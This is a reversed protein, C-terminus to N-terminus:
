NAADPRRHHEFRRGRVSRGWNGNAKCDCNSARGCCAECKSQTSRRRCTKKASSTRSGIRGCTSAITAISPTIAPFSNTSAAFSRKRTLSTNIPWLLRRHGRPQGGAARRAGGVPKETRQCVAAPRAGASLGAAEQGASGPGAAATAAPRGLPGPRVHRQTAPSVRTGRGRLPPRANGHRQRHPLPPRRRDPAGAPRSLQLNRRQLRDLDLQRRQGATSTRRRRRPHVPPSTGPRRRSPRRAPVLYRGEDDPGRHSLVAIMRQLTAQELAKAPDTWVAGAIGCM